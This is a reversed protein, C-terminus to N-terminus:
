GRVTGMAFFDGYGSFWVFFRCITSQEGMVVYAFLMKLIVFAHTEDNILKYGSMAYKERYAKM